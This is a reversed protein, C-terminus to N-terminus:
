PAPALLVLDAVAMAINNRDAGYRVRDKPRVAQDLRMVIDRRTTKVAKGTDDKLYASVTCWIGRTSTSMTTWEGAAGAGNVFTMYSHPAVSKQVSTFRGLLEFVPHSYENGWGASAGIHQPRVADAFWDTYAWNGSKPVATALSGHHAAALGVVEPPLAKPLGPVVAKIKRITQYTMDGPLIVALRQPEDHVVVVGSSRNTGKKAEPFNTMLFRFFVKNGYDAFHGPPLKAYDTHCGIDFDPDRPAPYYTQRAFERVWEKSEDSWKQGCCYIQDVTVRPKAKGLLNGLEPLLNVHDKDQHSIVVLDIHNRKVAKERVYRLAGAAQQSDGGCDILALFAAPQKVDEYIEVLTMAGQGCSLMTVLTTTM